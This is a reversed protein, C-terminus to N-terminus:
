CAALAKAYSANALFHRMRPDISKSHAEAWASIEESVHKLAELHAASDRDRWAHDAIVAERRLLLQKLEDTTTM